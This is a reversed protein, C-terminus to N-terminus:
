GVSTSNDMVRGYTNRDGLVENLPFRLIANVAMVTCTRVLERLMFDFLVGDKGGIFFVPVTRRFDLFNRGLHERGALRRKQSHLFSLHVEYEGIIPPSLM